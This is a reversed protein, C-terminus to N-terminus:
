KGVPTVRPDNKTAWVAGTAAEADTRMSRFKILEFPEGNWGSRTQRYFGPGPSTVKVLVWVLVMLPLTLIFGILGLVWSYISQLQGLRRTDTRQQAFILDAPRLDHVSVRHHTNEFTQSADEINVGSFKLDLLEYMPLQHRRERLGIVISDPKSEAVLRRLDAIRGLVRGGAEPAEDDLFGQVKLGLEPYADIREAIRQVTENHGLFLIRHAGRADRLLGSYTLRLLTLCILSAVSGTLMLWRPVITAPSAYNIVSQLLFAIGLATCIQQVLLTRSRVQIESYMDQFYLGLLIAVVVVLSNFLGGDQLLYVEPDVSMTAYSAVVFCLVLATLETILLSVISSPIFFRSLSTM